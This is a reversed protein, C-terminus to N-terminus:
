ANSTCVHRSLSLFPLLSVSAKEMLEIEEIPEGEKPELQKKSKLRVWCGRWHAKRMERRLRRGEVKALKDKLLVESIGGAAEGLVGMSQGDDDDEASSEESSSYDLFSSSDGHPGGGDVDSRAHLKTPDSTTSDDESDSLAVDAGGASIQGVRDLMESRKKSKKLLAMFRNVGGGSTTPETRSTKTPSSTRTGRTVFASKSSSSSTSVKQRLRRSPPDHLMSPEAADKAPRKPASDTLLNLDACPPTTLVFM